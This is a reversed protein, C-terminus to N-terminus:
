FKTVLCVDVDALVIFLISFHEWTLFANGECNFLPFSEFLKYGLDILSKSFFLFLFFRTQEHNYALYREM